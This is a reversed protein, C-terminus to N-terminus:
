KLSGRMEPEDRANWKPMSMLAFSPAGTYATSAPVTWKSPPRESETTESCLGRM